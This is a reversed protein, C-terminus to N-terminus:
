QGVIEVLHRIKFVMGRIEPTDPRTVIQNLRRFGLGQIVKKQKVPFGIGSRVLKIQIQGNQTKSESMSSNTYFRKGQNEVCNPWAM